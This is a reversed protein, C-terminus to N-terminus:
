TSYANTWASYVGADTRYYSGSNTLVTAANGTSIGSTLVMSNIITLEAAVAHDALTIGGTLECNNFRFRDDDNYPVINVAGEIERCEDAYLRIAQTTVSHDIDISNGTSVQSFSVGKLHVIIKRTMAANDIQLGVQATHEICVNQIFAEPISGTPNISIVSTGTASIVVNGQSDMGILRVGDISPWTLTSAEAYDGPMVFITKRASTVVSFAKTVTAYPRIISGTGADSGNTAVFIYTSDPADLQTIPIAASADLADTTIYKGRFFNRGETDKYGM